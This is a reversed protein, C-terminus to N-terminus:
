TITSRPQLMGSPRTTPSSAASSACRKWRLAWPMVRTVASMSEFIVAHLDQVGRGLHKWEDFGTAQGVHETGQGLCQDRSPGVNAQYQGAQWGNHFAHLALLRDALNASGEARAADAQAQPPQRAIPYLNVHNVRGVQVLARAVRVHGKIATIPGVIELTKRQQAPHGGMQGRTLQVGPPFRVQQMGMVPM